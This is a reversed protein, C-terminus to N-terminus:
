CDYELTNSITYYKNFGLFTSAARFRVGMFIGENGGNKNGYFLPKERLETEM